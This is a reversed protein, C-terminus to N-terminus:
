QTTDYQTTDLLAKTYGAHLLVHVTFHGTQLDLDVPMAKWARKETHTPLSYWVVIASLM